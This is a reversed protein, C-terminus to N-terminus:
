RDSARLRHRLHPPRVPADPCRSPRWAPSDLIYGNAEGGQAKALQGKLVDVLEFNIKYTGDGVAAISGVM